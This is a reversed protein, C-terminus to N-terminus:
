AVDPERVARASSGAGMQLTDTVLLNRRRPSINMRNTGLRDQFAPAGFAWVLKGAFWVNMPVTYNSGTMVGFTLQSSNNSSISINFVGFKQGNAGYFTFEENGNPKMRYIRKNDPAYGFHETGGSNLAASTMRNAEDYSYNSPTAIM